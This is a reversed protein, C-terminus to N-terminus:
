WFLKKLRNECKSPCIRYNSKDVKKILEFDELDKIIDFLFCRPVGKRTGGYGKGCIFHRSVVEKLIDRKIIYFGKNKEKLLKYIYVYIIPVPKNKM